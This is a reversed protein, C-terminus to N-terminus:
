TDCARGVIPKFDTTPWWDLGNRSHLLTTMYVNNVCVVLILTVHSCETHTHVRQTTQLHM